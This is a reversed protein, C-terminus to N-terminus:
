KKNSKLEKELDSLSIEINSVQAFDLSGGGKGGYKESIQKALFGAGKTYTTPNIIISLQNLEKSYIFLKDFKNFYKKKAIIGLKLFVDVNHINVTKIIEKGKQIELDSIIKELEMEDVEALAKQMRKIEAAQKDLSALLDVKPVRLIEAVKDLTNSMELAYNVAANGAKFYIREVGDRVSERKVIKFYGIQGTKDLHTGGCAEIDIGAVDVIRIEKGPVVGGQYIRFGYKQEAVQRPFIGKKVQLDMQIYDNVKKEIEELEYKTVAKFHTIDLHAIDVKKSAGAQWIHKGLVQQCVGNLLHTSTHHQSLALRRSFDIKCNVTANKKIKSSDVVKHLIVDGVNKVETVRVDNIKGLDCDQGGGEPFFATKNLVVYDDIVALVKADFSDMYFYEYYMKETKELDKIKNLLPDQEKIATPMQKELNIEQVELKVNEKAAIEKVQELVIGYSEYLFSLDQETLTNSEKKKKVIYSSLFSKNQDKSKKYKEYESDLVNYIVNSEALEPYLEKLYNIHKEIITSLDVSFNNKEYLSFARRLIYRLNYGGGTNSPLMGDVSTFIVTKLHDMIAYSSQLPFLQKKMEDYPLGIKKAISNEDNNIKESFDLKGAGIVYEELFDPDKISEKELFYKAVPGFTIDYSMPKTDTIWAFREQGAGMDIVKTDLEKLGNDNISYQMFVCNGLEIGDVFYELSPGCNGGGMWVDERFVIKEKPLGLGKTLFLFDNEIAQDKWYFLGTKKSNFAHQGIMVFNTYHRGTVGVNPIDNFRLCPQNIVLPNAVPEVEGSVVYPQFGTISALNFYIDSRWRAITPFRKVSTHNKKVFFREFSKWAEIYDLKQSTLKKGIFKYGVCESDECVGRAQDLTWFYNKCVKCQKRVFGTNELFELKYNEKWKKAFDQKLQKKEIM